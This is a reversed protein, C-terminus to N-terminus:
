LLGHTARDVKSDDRNNAHYQDPLNNCLLGRDATLLCTISRPIEHYQFDCVCLEWYLLNSEHRSGINFSHSSIVRTGKEVNM